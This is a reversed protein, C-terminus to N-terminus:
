IAPAINVQQVIAAPANRAFDGSLKIQSNFRSVKREKQLAFLLCKVQLQSLVGSSKVLLKNLKSRISTVDIDASSGGIDLSISCAPLALTLLGTKKGHFYDEFGEEGKVVVSSVRFM